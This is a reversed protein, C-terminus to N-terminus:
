NRIKIKFGLSQIWKDFRSLNLGLLELWDRHSRGQFPVVDGYAQPSIVYSLSTNAFSVEVGLRIGLSNMCDAHATAVL